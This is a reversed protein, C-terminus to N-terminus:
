SRVEGNDATGTDLPYEDDAEYVELGEVWEVAFASNEFDHFRGEGFKDADEETLEITWTPVMEGPTAQWEYAVRVATIGKKRLAREIERKAM